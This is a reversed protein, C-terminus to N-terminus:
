APPEPWVLAFPNAQSTIERLLQRYSAWAARDAGLDYDVIQTWDSSQLLANREQRVVNWKATIEDANYQRVFFTTGDWDVTETLPDCDPRDYPGTYGAQELEEITFTSADTRTSGDSFRLRHPLLVPELGHLSYLM